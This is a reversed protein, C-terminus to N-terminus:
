RGYLGRVIGRLRDVEKWGSETLEYGMRFGRLKLIRSALLVSVTQYLTPKSISFGHEAATGVIDDPLVHGQAILEIVVSRVPLQLRPPLAHRM